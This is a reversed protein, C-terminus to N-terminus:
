KSKGIQLSASSAFGTWVFPPDLKRLAVFVGPARVRLTLSGRRPLPGDRCIVEGELARGAAVLVADKQSWEDDSGSFGTNGNLGTAGDEEHWVSCDTWLLAPKPMWMPTNSRNHLKVRVHTAGKVTRASLAELEVLGDARRELLAAPPVFITFAARANLGLPLVHDPPLPKAEHEVPVVVDLWLDYHGFPCGGACEEIDNDLEGAREIVADPALSRWQLPPVETAEVVGHGFEGRSDLPQRLAGFFMWDATHTPIQIVRNSTNRLRAVWYVRDGRQPNRPAVQLTVELPSPAAAPPQANGPSPFLAVLALAIVVTRM